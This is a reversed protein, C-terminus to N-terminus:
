HIGNLPYRALFAILREGSWRTAAAFVHRPTPLITPLQQRLFKLRLKTEFAQSALITDEEPVLKGGAGVTGVGRSNRARWHM